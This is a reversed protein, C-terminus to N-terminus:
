LGATRQPAYYDQSHILYNGEEDMTRVIKLLMGEPLFLYVYEQSNVDGKKLGDVPALTIANYEPHWQGVLLTTNNSLEDAQILEFRSKAQSYGLFCERHRYSGDPQMVDTKEHLYSGQHANSVSAKGTAQYYTKSEPQWAYHSVLWNGAIKRLLLNAEASTIAGQEQAMTVPAAVALLVAALVSVIFKKM